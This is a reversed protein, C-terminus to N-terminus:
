IRRLKNEKKFKKVGVETQFNYLGLDVDLNVLALKKKM